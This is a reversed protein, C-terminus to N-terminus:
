GQLSIFQFFTLIMRLLSKICSLLNVRHLFPTMPMDDTKELLQYFEEPQIDVGSRYSVGSLTLKLPLAHIVFDGIQQQSLDFGSDTVIQM